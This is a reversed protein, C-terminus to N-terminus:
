LVGGFFQGHFGFPVHQPVAARAREEFTQADLVLMFSTASREDLVVSLCVGEDEAQAGPAAVFVPEGPWCGQQRWEVHEGSHMDIKVLHDIFGAPRPGLGVGWIYRYPLGNRTHYAIRPLELTATGIQDHTVEGGTLPVRYRRLVPPDVDPQRRARELYLADIIEPDDYTAMDVVLEDGDEFANVHHFAFCSPAEGITRLTADRLDIVLFRTPQDPKWEFAEIFPRGSFALNLPNVRLPFETLVAYRETIGFSHMYGPRKVPISAIIRPKRSGPAVAHLRYSSRPGFHVAHNVLEGTRPHRHPHATTHLGPIGGAYSAPGLTKLTRPDFSMPMPTETMAIFEDGLRVVNVNCNDAIKPRFMASVRQFISRCPDTAFESYSIEGSEQAARRAKTEIFRNRYGVRGAGITFAHLMAQGDFWHNFSRSGVEFKTPGNRVLTGQLWAPLEGEVPLADVEIEREQTSLGLQRGSIRTTADTAAM